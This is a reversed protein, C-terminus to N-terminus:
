PQSSRIIPRSATRQPAAKQFGRSQIKKRKTKIGNHRDSIRKAKAITPVDKTTTKAKHCAICLVRCNELIPEGGLGDPIDHDFHYKGISLVANCRFEQVM